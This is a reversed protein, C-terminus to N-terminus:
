RIKTNKSGTNGQNDSWHLTMADGKTGGKFKFSFYPNKSIGTSILASVVVKGNHTFTIEKLYDAPTSDGEKAGRMPNKILTKIQTTGNRSKALLRIKSM